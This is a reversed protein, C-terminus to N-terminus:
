VRNIDTDANIFEEIMHHPIEQNLNDFVETDFPYRDSIEYYTNKFDIFATEYKKREQDFSELLEMESTNPSTTDQTVSDKNVTYWPRKMESTSTLEDCIDPKKLYKYNNKAKARTMKQVDMQYNNFRKALDKQVISKDLEDDDLSSMYEMLDESYKQAINDANEDLLKKNKENSFKKKFEEVVTDDINPSIEMLRDFEDKYYKLMVLPSERDKPHKTLEIKINQCFKGWSIASVRHSENLESIKLFQQITTIIGAIINISGIVMQALLKHEEPFREQAFNATGSVTSMIIVPITFWTNRRSFIRHSRTHLWRYIMAKDAWETFIEEQHESWGDHQVFSTIEARESSVANSETEM